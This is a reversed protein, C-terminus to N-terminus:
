KVLQANQLIFDYSYGAGFNVDKALKAKITIIHGAPVAELSTAVMDFSDFSGDQLHLWNRDMINANIKTVKATLQVEQGVYKDANSILERIKISGARELSSESPITSSTKSNGGKVLTEIANGVTRSHKQAPRLDSVLYIEEFNRNFESSYYNTKFLGKDFLYESQLPLNVKMTAIWFEKEAERVKFYSYKEGQLSDILLVKHRSNPSSAVEQTQNSPAKFIAEAEPVAEQAELVEPGNNCAITFSFLFLFLKSQFKM